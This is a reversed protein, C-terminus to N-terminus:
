AGAERNDTGPPSRRVPGSPLGNVSQHRYSIFGHRCHRGLLADEHPADELVHIIFWVHSLDGHESAARDHDVVLHDDADSPVAVEQYTDGGVAM